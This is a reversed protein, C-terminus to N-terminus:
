NGNLVEIRKVYVAKIGHPNEHEKNLLYNYIKELDLIANNILKSNKEISLIQKFEEKSLYNLQNILQNNEYIGYFTGKNDDITVIKRTLTSESIALADISTITKIKLNLTYALTKAVTIGLRVGTFSGPGKIVIVENLDQPTIKSDFLVKEITPILYISHSRESITEKFSLKKGEKLLGITILSDYTSIFLTYM